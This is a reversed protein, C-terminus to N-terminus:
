ESRGRFHIRIPTGKFEYADRLVNELYRVYSFHVLKPDNCFCTFTPPEVDTQATYYIKLTRGRGSLPHRQVAHRILDNLQPTPVRRTRQRRVELAVEVIREVRQGTKASIFLIPAWDAFKLERRIAATHEQQVRPHKEVLDWKNIAVVLGKAAEDVYGAVHTDQALVGETADLLLVAVDAREIARVARLVSFKEVGPAVRGRRRIGATDILRIRQGDREVLTDIADRTTGAEDHVISRKHGVLANLVSSKGVNPRGVIAISVAPREEEEEPAKPFWEVIADLLDGTGEGHLASVMIPDGMGLAYFESADLQRRLSETKNAVLIVPKKSRRLQDAVEQDAATLGGAADVVHVIVDAERMAEEAQLRVDALLDGEGTELGIGGTDVLSFTRGRWEATGYLRDRTTGPQEHVVARYEGILRNFLTSKGVNPRGVLAVLM